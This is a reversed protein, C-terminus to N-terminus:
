SEFVGAIRRREEQSIDAVGGAAVNEDVQEVNRAGVVVCSVASEDLVFRVAAQGPTRGTAGGSLFELRGTMEQMAEIYEEPLDGRIDGDAFRRGGCRGALFGNALVERALVGVGHKRALPFLEQVASQYFLSYAVEIVDVPCGNEVLWVGDDPEAVSVGFFRVKGARRLAELTEWARWRQLDRVPPNMLLYVDITERRLRYLSQQMAHAIGYPTWDQELSGDTRYFNIGGKTVITPAPGSWDQLVEGIMAESHGHGYIDATDLLSIGHKLARQIAARSMADDTDGYSNGFANGGVAWGGFGIESVELGTRGLARKRM